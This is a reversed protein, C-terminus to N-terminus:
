FDGLHIGKKALDIGKDLLMVCVSKFTDEDGKAFLIDTYLNLTEKFKFIEMSTLGGRLEISKLINFEARPLDPIHFYSHAIN